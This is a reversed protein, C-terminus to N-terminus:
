RHCCSRRPYPWQCRQDAWKDCCMPNAKACHTSWAIDLECAKLHASAVRVEEASQVSERFTSLPSWVWHMQLAPWAVSASPLQAGQAAPVKPAVAPAVSHLAQKAPVKLASIPALWHVGQPSLVYLAAPAADHEDQGVPVVLVSSLFPHLPSDAAGARSERLSCARQRAGEARGWWVSMSSHAFVASLSLTGGAAHSM